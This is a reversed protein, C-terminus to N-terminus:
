DQSIDIVRGSGNKAGGFMQRAMEEQREVASMRQKNPPSGRAQQKPKWDVAKRAWTRFAAQWDLALRGNTKAHDRFNELETAVPIGADRLMQAATECPTFDEPIQTKRARAKKPIDVSRLSTSINLEQKTTVQQNSTPQEAPQSNTVTSTVEDDQSQYLGYNVITYITFKNTPKSTVIRLSELRELSTRIQQEGQELAAALQKRGAIYQGQQLEIVGTSTGVKRPARCAKMLLYMFLALTNPMQLLGSDELKRWVKIYGREM